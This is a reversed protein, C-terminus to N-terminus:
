PRLHPRPLVAVRRRGPRHRPPHPDRRHARRRTRRRPPRRDRRGLPAPARVGGHRHRHRR